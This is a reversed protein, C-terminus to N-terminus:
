KMCASVDISSGKFTYLNDIYEVPSMRTTPKMLVYSARVSIYRIIPKVNWNHIRNVSNIIFKAFEDGAKLQPIVSDDGKKLEFLLVYLQGGKFGMLCYDCMTQANSITNYFTFLRNPCQGKKYKKDFSFLCFNIGSKILSIPKMVGAELLCSKDQPKYLEVILEDLRNLYERKNM